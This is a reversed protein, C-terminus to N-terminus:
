KVVGCKSCIKYRIPMSMFTAKVPTFIHSCYFQKITESTQNEKVHEEVQTAQIKMGREELLKQYQQLQTTEAPKEVKQAQVPFFPQTEPPKVSYQNRLEQFSKEQAERNLPPQRPRKNLPNIM